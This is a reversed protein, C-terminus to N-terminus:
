SGTYAIPVPRVAVAASACATHEAIRDATEARNSAAVAAAIRIWYPPDTFAPVVSSSM